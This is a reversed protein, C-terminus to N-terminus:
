GLAQRSQFPLLETSTSYVIVDASFLDYMEYRGFTGSNLICRLECYHRYNLWLLAIDGFILWRTWFYERPAEIGRELLMLVGISFTILDNRQLIQNRQGDSACGEAGAM